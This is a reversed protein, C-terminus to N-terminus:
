RDVVPDAAVTGRVACPAGRKGAAGPRRDEGAGLAGPLSRSCEDLRPPLAHKAPRDDLIELM